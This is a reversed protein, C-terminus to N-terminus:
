APVPTTTARPREDLFAMAACALVIVGIFIEFALVYSGTQDHIYGALPPGIVALPMTFPGLLGMVQGFAVPGFRRGIIAGMLPLFGGTSFGLLLSLGIMELYGPDGMMLALPLVLVAGASWFLIRHSIRDALGGYIIKGLIGAAALVSMLSAASSVSLGHDQAYPILNAQAGGFVMTLTGFAIATAWFTRDHLIEKYTWASHAAPGGHGPVLDPDPEVGKDEPRNAVFLFVPPLILVLILVALVQHAGRWGLGLDVLLFASLLPLTLGGISTGVSSLGIALGRRGNFWKAALTSAPLPGALLMGIAVFIAYAAIFMWVAQALSALFFGLAMLITGATVLTRISQRDMARGAFPSLTGMVVSLLTFGIMIEARSAGFEAGLPAVWLGFTYITLGFSIAQFAMATGIVNWGYYWRGM